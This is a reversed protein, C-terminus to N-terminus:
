CIGTTSPPQRVAWGGQGHAHATELDDEKQAHTKM